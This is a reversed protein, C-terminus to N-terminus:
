KFMEVSLPGSFGPLRTNLWNELASIDFAHTGTVPRTGVFHDFASM